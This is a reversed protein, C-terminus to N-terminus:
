AAVKKLGLKTGVRDALELADNRAKEISPADDKALTWLTGGTATIVKFTEREIMGYLVDIEYEKFADISASATRSNIAPSLGNMVVGYDITTRQKREVTKIVKITEFAAEADFHSAKCPVLVLDSWAIATHQLVNVTGQVDILVIQYTKRADEILDLLRNDDEVETFVDINSPLDKRSAWKSLSRQPDTDILACKAGMHAFASAIAITLTTKGAGGKSTCVSIVKSM